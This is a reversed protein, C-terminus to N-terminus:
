SRGRGAQRLMHSMYGELAPRDSARLEAGYEWGDADQRRWVIRLSVMTERQGIQLKCRLAKSSLPQSSRLGLGTRSVNTIRATHTPLYSRGEYLHAPGSDAFRYLHRREDSSSDSAYPQM